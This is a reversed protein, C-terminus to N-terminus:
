KGIEYVGDCLDVITAKLIKWENNEKVLIITAKSIEYELSKKSDYPNSNGIIVYNVEISSSTVNNINFKDMREYDGSGVACSDRYVKNNNIVYGPMSSLMDGELKVNTSWDTTSYLSKYEIFVDNYLLKESFINYFRKKFDDLTDYYCWRTNDVKEIEEEWCINESSFKNAADLKEKAIKLAEDSSLVNSNDDKTVDEKVQKNGNNDIVEKIYYSNNKFGLVIVYNLIRPRDNSVGANYDIEIKSNVYILDNKVKYDEILLKRGLEMPMGMRARMEALSNILSFLVDYTKSENNIYMYKPYPSINYNIKDTNFYIKGYKEVDSLDFSYRDDKKDFKNSIFLINLIYIIDIQRNKIDGYISIYDHSGLEFPTKGVMPSLFQELDEKTVNVGVLSSRNDDNNITIDDKKIFVLYCGLGILMIGIVVLVVIVIKKKKIDKM